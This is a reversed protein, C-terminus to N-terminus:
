SSLDGDLVVVWWSGRSLVGRAENYAATVLVWNM